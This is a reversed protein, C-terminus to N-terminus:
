EKIYKQDSEPIGAKDSIFREVKMTLDYKERLQLIENMMPSQHHADIADQGIWSDILLITEADELPLFYEYKINGPSQRIREVIGKEHMEQAFKRANNNKGTYYINITIPM